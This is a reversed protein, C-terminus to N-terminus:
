KAGQKSAKRRWIASFYNKIPLRSDAKPLNALCELDSYRLLRLNPIDLVAQGGM